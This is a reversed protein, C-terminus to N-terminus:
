LQSLLKVEFANLSNELLNNSFGRQPLRGQWHRLVMFEHAATIGNQIALMITLQGPITLKPRSLQM